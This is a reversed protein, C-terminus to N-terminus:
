PAAPRVLGRQGLDDLFAELDRALEGPDVEPYRAKLAERVDDLPRGDLLSWVFSGVPNLTRVRGGDLSIVATRGDIERWVADPARELRRDAPTRESM